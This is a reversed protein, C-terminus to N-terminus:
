ARTQTGHEKCIGDFLPQRCRECYGTHEQHPKAWLAHKSIKIQDLFVIKPARKEDFWVIANGSSFRPDMIFDLIWAYEWKEGNWVQCMLPPRYSM